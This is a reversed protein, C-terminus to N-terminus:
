YPEDCSKETKIVCLRRFGLNLGLAWWQWRLLWYYIGRVQDCDMHHRVRVIINSPQLCYIVVEIPKVISNLHSIDILSNGINNFRKELISIPLKALNFHFIELHPPIILTVDLFLFDFLKYLASLQLQYITPKGACIFCTRIILVQNLVHHTSVFKDLLVEAYLRSNAPVNIRKPVRVSVSCKKIEKAKVGDEIGPYIVKLFLLSLIVLCHFIDVSWNPVGIAIITIRRGIALNKRM